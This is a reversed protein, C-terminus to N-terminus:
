EFHLLSNLNPSSIASDNGLMVDVYQAVVPHFKSM